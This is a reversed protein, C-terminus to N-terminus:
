KLIGDFTKWLNNKRYEVIGDVYDKTSYVYKGNEIEVFANIINDRYGVKPNYESRLLLALRFSNPNYTYIKNDSMPYVVRSNDVTELISKAFSTLNETEKEYEFPKVLGTMETFEAMQADTHVFQLFKVAADIKEKAIDSKIFCFTDLASVLVNETGVYNENAKPFPMVKYDMEADYKTAKSGYTEKFSASAENEWWFGDVMIAVNKQSSITPNRVFDLQAQAIKYSGSLCKNSDYWIPTQSLREAFKSAYLIGPQRALEYGNNETIAVKETEFEMTDYNVTDLKALEAEGNFKYNLMYQEYGMNDAAMQAVLWLMYDQSAGPWLIPTSNDKKIEDLLAYFEEYTAPMGDDYTGAKGDPGKSLKGNADTYGGGEAIYWGEEDFLTANYVMCYSSLWYPLAYIKGDVLMSDKIDASMKDMISEDDGFETLPENVYETIDLMKGSRAWWQYYVSETFFIDDNCGETGVLEKLAEGMMTTRNKSGIIVQVGKKGEEFSTDAYKEEFKKIAAKLWEDGVGGDVMGIILNTKNKDIEVDSRVGGFSGKGGCGICSVAMVTGLVLAAIRKMGKM